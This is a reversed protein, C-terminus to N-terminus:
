IDSRYDFQVVNTVLLFRQVKNHVYKTNATKIPMQANM